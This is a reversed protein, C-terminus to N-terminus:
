LSTRMNYMVFHCENSSLCYQAHLTKCNSWSQELNSWSWQTGLVTTTYQEENHTIEADYM